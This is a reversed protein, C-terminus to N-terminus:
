TKQRLNWLSILLGWAAVIGFLFLDGAVYPFVHATGKTTVLVYFRGDDTPKYKPLVVDDWIPAKHITHGDSLCVKRNAPNALNHYDAATVVQVIYHQPDMLRYQADRYIFQMMIWSSVVSCLLVLFVVAPILRRTAPNLLKM